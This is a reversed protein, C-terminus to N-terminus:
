KELVRAVQKPMSYAVIRPSPSKTKAAIMMSYAIIKSYTVLPAGVFPQEFYTM